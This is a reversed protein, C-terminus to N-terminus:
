KLKNFLKIGADCLDSWGNGSNCNGSTERCSLEGVIKYLKNIIDEASKNKLSSKKIDKVLLNENAFETIEDIDDDNIEGDIVLHSNVLDEIHHRFTDLIDEHISESDLIKNESIKPPWRFISFPFSNIEVGSPRSIGNEAREDPWCSSKGRATAILAISGLLSFSM